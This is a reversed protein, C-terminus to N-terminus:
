LDSVHVAFLVFGYMDALLCKLTMLQTIVFAQPPRRILGDFSSLMAISNLGSRGLSFVPIVGTLVM